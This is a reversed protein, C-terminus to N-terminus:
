YLRFEVADVSQDYTYYASFADFMPKTQVEEIVYNLLSAQINGNGGPLDELQDQVGGISVRCLTTRCDIIVNGVASRQPIADIQTALHSSVQAAWDQDTSESNFISKISTEEPVESGDVPHTLKGTM